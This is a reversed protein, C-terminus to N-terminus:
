LKVKKLHKSFILLIVFIKIQISFKKACKYYRDLVDRVNGRFYDIGMDKSFKVIKEDDESITTALIIKNLSKCNQLQKIVYYLMSNAKDLNMLVKGPLRSSGM